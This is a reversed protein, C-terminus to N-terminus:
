WSLRYTKEDLTYGRVKCLTQLFQMMQENEHDFMTYSTLDTYNYGDDQRANIVKILLEKFKQLKREASKLHELTPFDAFEYQVRNIATGNQDYSASVFSGNTLGEYSVNKGNEYTYIYYNKSSHYTSKSIGHKERKGDIMKFSFETTGDGNITKSSFLGYATDGVISVVEDVGVVLGQTMVASVLANRLTEDPTTKFIREVSKLKVEDTMDRFTSIGVKLKTKIIPFIM